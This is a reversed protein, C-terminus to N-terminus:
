ITGAQVMEKFLNSNEVVDEFSGQAIIEGKDMFYINDCDQVSKLRHAVKLITLDPYNTKLNELLEMETLYDLASTSEDLILLKPDRYLARAFGIRQKQGGSLKIGYEGVRTNLGDSLDEVFPLLSFKDLITNLKEFDINSDMEELTINRLLTDDFFFVDQPVFSILRKLYHINKKTIIQEDLYITGESPHLLGSIIEVLTTKGSGSYGVIGVKEGKRIQITVNKLIPRDEEHSFSCCSLM